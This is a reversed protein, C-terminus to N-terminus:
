LRLSQGILGWLEDAVDFSSMHRTDLQFPIMEKRSDNNIGACVMLCLLTLSGLHSLSSSVDLSIVRRRLIIGLLIQSKEM